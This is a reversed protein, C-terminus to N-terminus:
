WSSSVPGTRGTSYASNAASPSTNSIAQALTEFRSIARQRARCCSNATREASPAPRMLNTRCISASPMISLRSPQPAPTPKAWSAMIARRLSGSPVSGRSSAIEIWQVITSTNAAMAMTVVARDDSSGASSAARACGCAANCLAERPSPERVTLPLNLPRSTAPSTASEVSSSTPVPSSNWVSHFRSCARSPKSVSRTVVKVAIGASAAPNEFM